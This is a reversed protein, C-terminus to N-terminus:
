TPEVEIAPGIRRMGEAFRQRLRAAQPETLGMAPDVALDRVLGILARILGVVQAATYADGRDRADLGNLRAEREYAGLISATAASVEPGDADALRAFNKRKIRDLGAQQRARLAASDMLGHAEIEERRRVVDEWATKVSVKLQQGIQEFTANAVYLDWAKARRVAMEAIKRARATGEAHSAPGGIRTQTFGRNKRGSVKRSGRKPQGRKRKPTEPM